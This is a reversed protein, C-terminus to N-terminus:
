KSKSVAKKPHFNTDIDEYRIDPYERKVHLRNGELAIGCFILDIDITGPTLYRNVTGARVAPVTTADPNSVPNGCGRLRPSEPIEPLM